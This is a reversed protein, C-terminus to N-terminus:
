RVGMGNHKGSASLARALATDTGPERLRDPGQGWAVESRHTSRHEYRAKRELVGQATLAQVGWGSSMPKLLPDPSCTRQPASPM